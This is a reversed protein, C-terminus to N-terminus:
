KKFLALGRHAYFGTNLMKEGECLIVVKDRYKELMSSSEARGSDHLLIITDEKAIRFAVDLCEDRYQGDILIFDPSQFDLPYSIYDNKGDVVKIEARKSIKDALLEFYRKNHEMALWKQICKHRKPFYLTSNGSGWELCIEPKREKILDNIIEIEKDAMMPKWTTM